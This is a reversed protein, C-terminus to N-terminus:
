LPEVFVLRCSAVGLYGMYVFFCFFFDWIFMPFVFFNIELLLLHFIFYLGLFFFLIILHEAEAIVVWIGLLSPSVFCSPSTTYWLGGMLLILQIFQQCVRVSLLACSTLSLMKILNGQYKGWRLFCVYLSKTRRLFSYAYVFYCYM